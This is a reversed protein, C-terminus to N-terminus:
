SAALRRHALIYDLPLPVLETEYRLWQSRRQVRYGATGVWVTCAANSQVPEGYPSGGGLLTWGGHPQHDLRLPQDLPGAEIEVEFQEGSGVIRVIDALLSLWREGSLGCRERAEAGVALEARLHACWANRHEIPHEPSGPEFHLLHALQAARASYITPAAMTKRRDPSKPSGSASGTESGPGAWITSCRTASM